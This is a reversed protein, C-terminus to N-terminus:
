GDHGGSTRAAHAARDAAGVTGSAPAVRAGQRKTARIVLGAVPSGSEMRLDAQVIEPALGAGSLLREIYARSHCYRGHMNLRHDVVSEGVAHEVTFILLGNPRLANAAAAVVGHLDGFYVLTDASVIV